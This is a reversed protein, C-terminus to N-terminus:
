AEEYGFVNNYTLNLFLSVGVTGTLGYMDELILYVHFQEGESTRPIEFKFLETQGSEQFDIEWAIGGTPSNADTTIVVKWKSKSHAFANNATNIARGYIATTPTDASYAPMNSITIKAWRNAADPGYQAAWGRMNIYGGNPGAGDQDKLLFAQNQPDLPNNYSTGFSGGPVYHVQQAGDALKYFPDGTPYLETGMGCVMDVVAHEDATGGVDSRLAMGWWSGGAVDKSLIFCKRVTQHPEVTVYGSGTYIGPSNGAIEITIAKDSHNKLIIIGMGRGLKSGFHYASVPINHGVAGTQAKADGNFALRCGSLGRLDPDAAEGAPVGNTIIKSLSDDWYEPTSVKANSFISTQLESYVSMYIASDGDSMNFTYTELGTEGVRNNVTMFDWAIFVNGSTADAAKITVQKGYAIQYTMERNQASSGEGPTGEPNDVDGAKIVTGGVVTLPYLTDTFQASANVNAAPMTFTNGNLEIDNDIEWDTFTKHAPIEAELTIQEGAVASTVEEGEANKAKGDTVTITYSVPPRDDKITLVFQAAVEETAIAKIVTEGPAVFTVTAGNNDGQITAVDTESSTWSLTYEAGEDATVAAKLEISGASFNTELTSNVNADNYKIAVSRVEPDPKPPAPKNAVKVLLEASKDGAQAKVTTEGVTKLALTGLNSVTAVEMNSSSWTVTDDADDDKTVVAELKATEDELYVTITNEVVEGDYKIAVSHVEPEAPPPTVASDKVTLKVSASKNGAQARITTEGATKLTVTGEAVTAVQENSSTWTVKGDAGDDKVVEAVLTLTKDSLSVEMTEGVVKGSHKLTVSSVEPTKQNQNQDQNQDQNQTNDPNEGGSDGCAATACVGFAMVASLLLALLKSKGKM